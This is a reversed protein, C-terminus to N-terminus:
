PVSLNLDLGELAKSHNGLSTCATDLSVSGALVKYTNSKCRCKNWLPHSMGQNGTTGYSPFGHVHGRTIGLWMRWIRILLWACATCSPSSGYGKIVTAIQSKIIGLGKRPVLRSKSCKTMVLVLTTDWIQLAENKVM